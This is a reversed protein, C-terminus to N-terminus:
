PLRSFASNRFDSKMLASEGNAAIGLIINIKTFDYRALDHQVLQTVLLHSARRLARRVM